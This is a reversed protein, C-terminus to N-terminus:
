DFYEVRLIDSSSDSYDASIVSAIYERWICVKRMNRQLVSRVNFSLRWTYHSAHVDLRRKSTFIYELGKHKRM